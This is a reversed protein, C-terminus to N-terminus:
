NFLPFNLDTVGRFDRRFDKIKTSFSQAASNTSRNNFFNTITDYHLQFIRM